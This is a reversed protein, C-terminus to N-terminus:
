KGFFSKYTFATYDEAPIAIFHESSLLILDQKVTLNIPYSCTDSVESLSPLFAWLKDKWGNRNEQTSFLKKFLVAMTFCLKPSKYKPTLITTEYKLQLDM